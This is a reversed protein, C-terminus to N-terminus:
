GGFERFIEQLQRKIQIQNNPVRDAVNRVAGNTDSLARTFVIKNEDAMSDYLTKVYLNYLDLKQQITISKMKMVNNYLVLLIHSMTYIRAANKKKKEAKKREFYARLKKFM